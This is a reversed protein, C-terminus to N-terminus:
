LINVLKGDVVLNIEANKVVQVYRQKEFKGKIYDYKNWYCNM